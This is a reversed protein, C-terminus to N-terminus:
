DEACMRCEHRAIEARAADVALEISTERDLDWGILEVSKGTRFICYGIPIELVAIVAYKESGAGDLETWGLDKIYAWKQEM